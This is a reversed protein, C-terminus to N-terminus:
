DGLPVGARLKEVLAIRKNIDNTIFMNFIHVKEKYDKEKTYNYIDKIFGVNYLLGTSAIGQVYIYESDIYVESLANFIDETPSCYHVLTSIIGIMQASQKRSEWYHYLDIIMDLYKKDGTEELLVVLVNKQYKYVSKCKAVIKKLAKIGNYNRLKPMYRAFYITASGDKIFNSYLIEEVEDREWDYVDDLLGDKLYYDGERTGILGLWEQLDNYMESHEM